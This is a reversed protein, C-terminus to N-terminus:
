FCPHGGPETATDSSLVLFTREVLFSVFSTHATDFAWREYNANSLTSGLSITQGEDPPRTIPGPRTRQRHGDIHKQERCPMVVISSGRTLSMFPAFVFEVAM